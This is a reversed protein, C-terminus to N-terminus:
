LQKQLTDTNVSIATFVRWTLMIDYLMHQPLFLFAPGFSEVKEINNKPLPRLVRVQYKVAKSVRARDTPM